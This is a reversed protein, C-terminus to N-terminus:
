PPCSSEGADLRMECLKEGHHPQFSATSCMAIARVALNDGCNLVMRTLLVKLQLLKQEAVCDGVRPLHNDAVGSYSWYPPWAGSLETEYQLYWTKGKRPYTVRPVCAWSEAM